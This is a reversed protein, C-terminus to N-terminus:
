RGRPTRAHGTWRAWGPTSPATAATAPCTTGGEAREHRGAGTVGRGMIFQLVAEAVARLSDGADHTELLDSLSM